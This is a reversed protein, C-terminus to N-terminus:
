KKDQEKCPFTMMMKNKYLSTFTFHLQEPNINLHKRMIKEEQGTTINTPYCVTYPTGELIFLSKVMHRYMERVGQLYCLCATLEFNKHSECQSLWEHGSMAQVSSITSFSFLFLFIIIKM